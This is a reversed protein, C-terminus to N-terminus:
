AIADYDNALLASAATIVSNAGVARFITQEGGSYPYGLYHESDDIARDLNKAVFDELKSKADIKQEKTMSGFQTQPLAKASFNINM